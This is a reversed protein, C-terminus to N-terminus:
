KTVNAFTIFAFVLVLSFNNPCEFQLANCFMAANQTRDQLSNLSRDLSAQRLTTSYLLCVSLSLPVVQMRLFITKTHSGRVTNSQLFNLWGINLVTYV